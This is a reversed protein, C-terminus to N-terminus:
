KKESSCGTNLAEETRSTWKISFPRNLFLFTPSPRGLLSRKSCRSLNNWLRKRKKSADSWIHFPKNGSSDPINCLGRRDQLDQFVSLLTHECTVKTSKSNATTLSSHKLVLSNNASWWSLIKLLFHHFELLFCRTDLFLRNWYSVSSM